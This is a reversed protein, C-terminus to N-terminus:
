PKGITQLPAGTFKEPPSGGEGKFPHHDDSDSDSESDSLEEIAAMVSKSEAECELAICVTDEVIQPEKSSEQIMNLIRAMTKQYELRTEAQTMYDSQRQMTEEKLRKNDKKAQELSNILNENKESVSIAGADEFGGGADESVKILKDNKTKVGGFKEKIKDNEKRIKKNEKKLFDIMKAQEDLKNKQTAAVKKPELMSKKADDSTQEKLEAIDAELIEREEAIDAIKKKLSADEEELNKKLMAIKDGYKEREQNRKLDREAAARKVAEKAKREVAEAAEKAEREAAEAAEKAERKAAEAAEKHEKEERDKAGFLDRMRKRAIMGRGLKQITIAFSDMGTSRNAELYELVGAKFYAKTKGVVFQSIVKGDENKMEGRSDLASTLMATVDCRLAEQKTMDDNKKSPFAKKDWMSCYRFRASGSELKNPFASNALTVAAVVGASRLQEVTPLHDMIIPVKKM